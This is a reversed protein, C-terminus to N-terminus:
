KAEGQQLKRVAKTELEKTVQSLEKDTVKGHLGDSCLLLIDGDELIKIYPTQQM